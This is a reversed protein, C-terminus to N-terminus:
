NRQRRSRSKGGILPRNLDSEAQHNQCRIFSCVLLCFSAMLSLASLFRREWKKSDGFEVGGVTIASVTGQEEALSVDRYSAIWMNTNSQFQMCQNVSAQECMFGDDDANEMHQYRDGNVNVEENKNMLSVLNSTKCPQCIKFADFADNWAVIDEDLNGGNNALVQALTVGGEYEEVCQNDTYLGINM